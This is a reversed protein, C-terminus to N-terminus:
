AGKLCDILSRVDGVEQLKMVLRKIEVAQSPSVVRRALDDFKAVVVEEPFPRERAGRPLPAVHGGLVRGDRLFITVRAGCRARRGFSELDADQEVAVREAMALVAPDALHRETMQDPGLEGECLALAVCFRVSFLAQALNDFTLERQYHYSISHLGVEVREVDPAKFGHESMLLLTQDVPEHTGQAAPYPKIHSDLLGFEKGLGQVVAAPDFGDSFAALFGGTESELANLSGEFGRSALQAAIVGSQAPRAVIFRKSMSFQAVQLGGSNIAAVALAHGLRVPDLKMVYGAAMAAGLNGISGTSNWGREIHTMDMGQRVRILTEMGMAVAGLLREGTAGAAEAVALAAPLVVCGTHLGLPLHTDDFEFGHTAISNVLTASTSHARSRTGWITAEDNRDWSEVYERVTRVWPLTSGFLGCGLTDLIILKVHTRTKEDLEGM